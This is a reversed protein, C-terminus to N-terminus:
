NDRENERGKLMNAVAQRIIEAMSTHNEYAIKRVEEYIDKPLSILLKKM